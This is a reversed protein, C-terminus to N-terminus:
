CGPMCHWGGVCEQQGVVARACVTDMKFLKHKEVTKDFRTFLSHVLAAVQLVNCQVLASLSYELENIAAEGPEESARM